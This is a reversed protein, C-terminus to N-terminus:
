FHQTMNLVLSTHVRQTMQAVGPLLCSMRELSTESFVHSAKM